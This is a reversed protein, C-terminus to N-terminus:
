VLIIDSSSIANNILEEENEIKKEMELIEDLTSRTKPHKSLMYSCCDPYPIISTKYTDIKKAITIIENKDFAILPSFIPLKTASYITTMNEITQSAVQGINDGTIVAKANEKKSIEDIIKFMFRRYIIMRYDSDINAIIHKQINSFPVVYLKSNGQFQNLTNVLNKIKDLIEKKVLTNNYIHVFIVKAGRKMFLFAAVPSDIGGSLSCIVNASVGVPLGGLGPTRSTFIFIEKLSVEVFLTLEPNKIDVKKNLSTYIVEGLSVNIQPSTLFFQKNSRKADVKFSDFTYNELFSVTNKKLIEFDLPSKFAFSFNAIGPIKTLKQELTNIEELTPNNIDILIFGYHRTIKHKKNISAYINSILKKEFFIRNKGKIAIENYHIIISNYM